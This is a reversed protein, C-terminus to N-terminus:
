LLIMNVIIMEGKVRNPPPFPVQMSHRTRTMIKMKTAVEGGNIDLVTEAVLEIWTKRRTLM